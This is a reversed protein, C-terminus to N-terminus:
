SNRGSQLAGEEAGVRCPQYRGPSVVLLASFGGSGQSGAQSPLTRGKGDEFRYCEEGVGPEESQGTVSFHHGVIGDGLVGVEGRLPVKGKTMLDSSHGIGSGM